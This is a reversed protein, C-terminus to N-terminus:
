TLPWLGLRQGGALSLEWLLRIPEHHLRGTSPRFRASSASARNSSYLVPPRWRLWNPPSAHRRDPSKKVKEIAPTARVSNNGRAIAAISPRAVRAACPSGEAASDM